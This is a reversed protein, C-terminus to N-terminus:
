FHTIDCLHCDGVSVLIIHPSFNLSYSVPITGYSERYVSWGHLYITFLAFGSSLFYYSFLM